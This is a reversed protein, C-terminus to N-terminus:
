GIPIKVTNIFDSTKKLALNRAKYLKDYNKSYFYKIRDDNFQNIIKLSNDNSKNDWFILEWNKYTQNLISRISREIFKEGNHSNM